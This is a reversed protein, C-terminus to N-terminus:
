IQIDFDGFVVLDWTFPVARFSGDDYSAIIEIELADIILLYKLFQDDTNFWERRRAM